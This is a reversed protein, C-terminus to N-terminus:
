EFVVSLVRKKVCFHNCFIYEVEIALVVAAPDPNSLVSLHPNAAQKPWL